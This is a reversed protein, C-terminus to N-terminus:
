GMYTTTWLHWLVLGLMVAFLVTFSVFGMVSLKHWGKLLEYLDAFREKERVNKADPIAIYLTSLHADYVTALLFTTVWSTFVYPLLAYVYHMLELMFIM